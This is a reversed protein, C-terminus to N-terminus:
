HIMSEYTPVMYKINIFADEGGTKELVSLVDAITDGLNNNFRQAYDMEGGTNKNKSRFMNFVPLIQRYYPVLAEGVKDDSMALHKICRLCRAIVDPHKTDLCQKLPIIIRPIVPLIQGRGQDLMDSVCMESLASFPHAMERLGDVFIPLYHMYDLKAPEVRWEIALQAGHRLAVPIDGREFQRRFETVPNNMASFMKYKAFLRPNINPKYANAKPPKVGWYGRGQIAGDIAILRHGAPHNECLATLSQDHDFASAKVVSVEGNQVIQNAATRFRGRRGQDFRPEASIKSIAM